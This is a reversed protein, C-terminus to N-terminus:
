MAGPIFVAAAGKLGAKSFPEINEVVNFGLRELSVACEKLGRPGPDTLSFVERHALDFLIVPKEYKSNDSGTSEKGSANKSAYKEANTCSAFFFFVTLTLAFVALLLSFRRM